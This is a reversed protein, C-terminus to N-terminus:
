TPNKINTKFQEEDIKEVEIEGAHAYTEIVKKYEPNLCNSVLIKKQGSIRCAMLIAEACANGADYVSANCVDMGTLDCIMSQFEYIIQLTGQSIEPQYPTYATNFEFRSSIQSIASPIFRKYSGGGIFYAYDNKNEKGLSKIKKQVEMESLGDPLNLKEMRIKKDIVSYLGEFDKEGITELMNKIIYDPNSKFNNM